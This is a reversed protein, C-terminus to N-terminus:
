LDNNFRDSFHKRLNDLTIHDLLGTLLINNNRLENQWEWFTRDGQMGIVKNRIDDEWHKPLWKKKFEGIFDDFTLASLCISHICIWDQMGPSELGHIVCTVRERAPVTKVSFYRLCM